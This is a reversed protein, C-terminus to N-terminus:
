KVDGASNKGIYKVKKVMRYRLIRGCKECVVRCPYERSNIASFEIVYYINDSITVGNEGCKPCNITKAM